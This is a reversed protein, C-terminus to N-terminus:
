WIVFHTRLELVQLEWSKELRLVFPSLRVSRFKKLMSRFFIHLIGIGMLILLFELSALIAIHLLLLILVLVGKKAIKM